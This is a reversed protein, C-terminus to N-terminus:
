YDRILEEKIRSVTKRTPPIYLHPHPQRWHSQTLGWLVPTVMRVYASCVFCLPTSCWRALVKRKGRSIEVTLPKM